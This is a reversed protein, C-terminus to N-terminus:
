RRPRGGPNGKQRRSNEEHRNVNREGSDHPTRGRTSHGGQDSQPMM